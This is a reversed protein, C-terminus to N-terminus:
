RWLRHVYKHYYPSKHMSAAFIVNGHDIGEIPPIFPEGGVASIVLDPELERILEPTVATNMRIEAQSNQVRSILSDRFMRIDYKFEIHESYSLTKGLSDSSECLVVSHGRELGGLAAQM